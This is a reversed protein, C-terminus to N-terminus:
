GNSEGGRDTATQLSSANPSDPFDIRNRKGECVECWQEGCVYLAEERCMAYHVKGRVHPCMPTEHQPGGDWTVYVPPFRYYNLFETLYLGEDGVRDNQPHLSRDTASM